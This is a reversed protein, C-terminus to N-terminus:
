RARRGNMKKLYKAMDEDFKRCAARYEDNVVNPREPPRPPKILKVREHSAGIPPLYERQEEPTMDAVNKELVVAM